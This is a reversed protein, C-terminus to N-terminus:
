MSPSPILMAVGGPSDGGIDHDDGIEVLERFEHRFPTSPFM